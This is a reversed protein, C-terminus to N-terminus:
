KAISGLEGQLIQKMAERNAEIAPRLFPNGNPMKVTGLEQYPAYQVNTGVYVSYEGNDDKPATGNYEGQQERNKDTYRSTHPPSGGLAYTISNRLLGTDVQCREKAATEITGGIMTLARKIAAELKKDLAASNDTFTASM